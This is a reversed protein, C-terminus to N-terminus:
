SSSKENRDRYIQLIGNIGSFNLRGYTEEDIMMVPALSCCGLCAVPQLTFLGDNTTEDVDIELIEKLVSIITMSGNVHCATGDCVRIIHKGPPTLKFQKYFTVVGYIESAPIGTVAAIRYVASEPIYSYQNQAAQLLPILAGKEGQYRWLASAFASPTFAKEETSAQNDYIKQITDM